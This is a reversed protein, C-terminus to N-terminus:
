GAAPPGHNDGETRVYIVFDWGFQSELRRIHAIASDEVVHGASLLLLGNQMKLDRALTMGARLTGSEIPKEPAHRRPPEGLLALLIDVVRPDYRKGRNAAIFDRAQEADLREVTLTGIQLADYDNAVALVRAGPPITEGALRDPYGEGDFREHHHRIIQAAGRLPELALLLAEGAVAHGEVTARDADTLGHYPREVLADPLGIKGLDHILAANALDRREMGGLGLRQALMGALEAVRAAHGALRTSRMDLLSAFAKIATDYSNRLAQHAHELFMVTQELEGTRAAVEGKLGSNLKVLQENQEEVRDILRAREETLQKHGIANQAALRLQVDVWPKAIYQHIQGKNIAAITSDLDAYATLLMRRTAPWRQAVQELFVAGSMGPMRMDSIVLDVPERELLALAEAGGPATLVRCGLPRFVRQLSALVNPEDDVCLLTSTAAPATGTAAPHATM